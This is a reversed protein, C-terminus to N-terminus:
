VEAGMMGVLIGCALAPFMAWGFTVPTPFASQGSRYATGRLGVALTHGSYKCVVCAWELLM